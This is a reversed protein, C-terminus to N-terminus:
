PSVGKSPLIEIDLILNGIDLKWTFLWFGFPKLYPSGEGAQGGTASHAPSNPYFIEIDLTWNGIKL